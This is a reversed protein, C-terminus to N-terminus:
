REVGLAACLAARIEKHGVTKNARNAMLFADSAANVMEDTVVAGGANSLCPQIAPKIGRLECECGNGDFCRLEDGTCVFEGGGGQGQQAQLERARIGVQEVWAIAGKDFLPVEWFAQALFEPAIAKDSPATM